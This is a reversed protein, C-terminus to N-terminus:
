INQRRQKKKVGICARTDWVVSLRGTLLIGASIRDCPFECFESM